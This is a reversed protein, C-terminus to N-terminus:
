DWNDAHMAIGALLQERPLRREPGDSGTGIWCWSQEAPVTVRQQPALRLGACRLRAWSRQAQEGWRTAHRGESARARTVAHLRLRCALGHLSRVWVPQRLVQRWLRGSKRRLPQELHHWYQQQRVDPRCLAQASANAAGGQTCHRCTRSLQRSSHCGEGDGIM